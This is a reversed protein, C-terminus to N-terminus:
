GFLWKQSHGLVPNKQPTGFGELARGNAGFLLVSPAKMSELNVCPHKEIQKVVRRPKM